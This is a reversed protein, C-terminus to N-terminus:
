IQFWPNVSQHDYATLYINNYNECFYFFYSTSIGNILVNWISTRSETKRSFVGNDKNVLLRETRFNTICFM